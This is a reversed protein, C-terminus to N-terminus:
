GPRTCCSGEVRRIRTLKATSQELKWSLGPHQSEAGEVRALLGAGLLAKAVAIRPAPPLRPPPLALGDEHKAASSLIARHTDTPPKTM